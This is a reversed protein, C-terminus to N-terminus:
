WRKSVSDTRINYGTNKAEVIIQGLREDVKQLFTNMLGKNNLKMRLGAPIEKSHTDIEDSSLQVEKVMGGSLMTLFQNYTVEVKSNALSNTAFVNLLFTIVLGAIIAPIWNPKRGEPLNHGSQQPPGSETKKEEM